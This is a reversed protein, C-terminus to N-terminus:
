VFYNALCICEISNTDTNKVIANGVLNVYRNIEPNQVPEGYKLVANLVLCQSLSTEFTAAKEKSNETALLMVPFLVMVIATCLIIKTDSKIKM